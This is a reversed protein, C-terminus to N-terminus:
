PWRDKKEPISITPEDVREKASEIAFELPKKVEEGNLMRECMVAMRDGPINPDVVPSMQEISLGNEFGYRIQSMQYSNLREDAYQKVQEISLGCQYGLYMQLMQMENFEPKAYVSVQETTLNGVCLGDHITAIQSTSFDPNMYLSVADVSLGKKFGERVYFMQGDSLSLDSIISIQEQTLGDKIAIDIQQQQAFTAVREPVSQSQATFKDEVAEITANMDPEVEDNDNNLLANLETLRANAKKLEDEQAFTKKIFEEANVKQVQLNDLEYKAKNLSEQLKEPNLLANIRGIGPFGDTYTGIKYTLTGKLYVNKNKWVSDYAALLKFGRFEGIQTLETSVFNKLAAKIANNMDEKDIYSVNNIILPQIADEVFGGTMNVAEIDKEYGAIRAEVSKIKAPIEHALSDEMAYKRNLFNTKLLKLKSVKIDLDMKEKILPNGTALAKIEAYSLATSDVDEASRVPTKSTMIQSIFKQKNEVLQWMYADFTDKTVYRFIEVEDQNNGQRIIRGSRQELDAPRWPCDLDHLAILKDQVNTGAGMKQTSGLLIRVDGNRVDAFLDEKQVETKADHIFAIEKEPIGREILKAKIDDYVSFLGDNRPTSLDSFVLQALRTDQHKEWIDYINDVCANVKSGEFDPLDPDYCRQDLGLNRGDNTIKLMNDESPDVGGNRVRKARDSFSAVIERQEDSPDVSINHYNVDPVDLDLEDATKIDAVGKFMTMLEPLNYFRAFRTKARYGTGEPALEVASVTEGFTSAWSDFHQLGMEELTDHQLYRQMTYIESMSNSVPTGTAFVTGKHGTMEDMYRTKMFMDTSKKAETQSIGAINQMKTYLYLNKFYHAEDVFLRDVGLEEFNVVDDKRDEDNLKDLKDQVGKRSRELQKITARTGNAEKAEIIGAMIEDLQAELIVKQREISLPIKEFQSHGIIVADYDGTAIRACFKKRNNTSFDKKTAVLINASPYLRLFEAAWQGTLHNPVVFMSKHCLGLRKSEMAAAVMEYTKGAGVSHALLTNGGYMIRAIADQQHKMLTIEPNMGHFLIHEGNFERLRSSNFKENYIDVLRERRNIDQWIWDAFADKIAQQKQQAITTETKNVVQKKKGDPDEITDYIITDKLNLSDELIRYASARSSGYEENAKINWRDYSKNEIDWHGTYPTYAIKINDRYYWSPQLLDIMFEQYVDIPVWTAGLRVSIEAASLPEPQVKELAEINIAYKDPNVEAYSRAVRLKEKVNGSLYEDAPEYLVVGNEDYREPNAFISGKLDDVIKEFSFGTLEKMFELDVRAKEGISIALADISSDATLEERVPRITRKTFIDAKRELNGEKDLHELSCLLYYSSDDSFAMSNGRSNILGYKKTYQEYVHNLDTQLSTIVEDSEDDLQADILSRVAQRLEILGKIRKEATPNVKVPHMVSNERFYIAGDVEAFSYNRVDPDAPIDGSVDVDDFDISIEAMNGSINEIAKLLLEGLESDAYPECTTEFGYPGSVVKTNGLIMEPHASFYANIEVTEGEPYTLIEGTIKDTAYDLHVWDPEVDIVRDRKQLFIIDSTVETGAASKFTNNPLRIAGLLEARQAIYKRIAPNEKDLTGKSTIFAVVGGPRVKDLTKAFFYDHILFNNKNYRKDNVKIQGFPVNGIACDFFSDPLDTKEYGEVAISSNQYLQRAIRGSISDLEVGYVRSDMLTEPLMGIFNGIGCSPELINGRKFNMNELANYMARIVIPPTYFATLTSARAAVYEDDTLLGKLEEYKNNREDFYDALGGWGVYKSLVEQEAVTALRNEEELQKLLRIATINNAYRETPTGVGLRDNEIRFNHRESSPIEPLVMTLSKTEKRRPKEEHGNEEDHRDSAGLNNIKAGLAIVEREEGKVSSVVLELGNNTLLDLNNELIKAPFGCMDISQEANIRRSTLTINLTDAVKKAADGMVEYFDGVQYVVVANPHENAVRNYAEWIYNKENHASSDMNSTSDDNEVSNIIIDNNVPAEEAKIEVEHLLYVNSNNEKLKEIFELYPMNQTFLPFNVDSLCVEDDNVSLVDFEDIGLYVRDGVSVKYEMEPEAVLILEDENPELEAALDSKLAILMAECRETLVADTDIIQNLAERMLLLVFDGNTRLAYTKKDGSGFANACDILVYNNLMAESHGNQHQYDNFERVIDRFENAIELRAAHKEMDAKYNPYEEKEKDSLYREAKILEGIRKQVASWSLATDTDSNFTKKSIRLGKSNHNQWGRIGDSFIVTGGGIGYEKSLFDANQKPTEKKLFQEYIRYKGHQFGSGSALVHDVDAQTIEFDVVSDEIVAEQENISPFLGFTTYQGKEILDGVLGAVVSWSLTSRGTASPYSNGGVWLELGEDLARFGAHTGDVLSTECYVDKSYIEDQLFKIRASGEKNENFFVVVSDRDKLNLGQHFQLLQTVVSEFDAVESIDPVRGASAETIRLSDGEVSNGRSQEPHQEDDTGMEISGSSEIGREREDERGDSEDIEGSERSSTPKSGDSTERVQGRDDDRFVDSGSAGEFINKEDSRIERYISEDRNENNIAEKGTILNKQLNLAKELTKVSLSIENLLTKSSNNISAGLVSIAQATNFLSINNFKDISIEDTPNLDCRSLLVYAISVQLVNRITSASIGEGNNYLLDKTIESNLSLVDGLVKPFANDAAQTAIEGMVAQLSLHTNLGYHECLLSRLTERMEPHVKWLYVPKGTTDSVDFVVFSSDASGNSESLYIPTANNDVVRELKKNWIDINACAVAEPKQAYILLQDVFSYKHNHAATNLFKCWNEPSQTVELSTNKLLESINFAM